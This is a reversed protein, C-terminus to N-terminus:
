LTLADRVTLAGLIIMVAITAGVTLWDRGAAASVLISVLKLLPMTLLGILGSTLLILATADDAHSLWLGLGVAICAFAGWFVARMLFSLISEGITHTARDETM